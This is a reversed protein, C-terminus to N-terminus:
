NGYITIKKTTRQKNFGLEIFYIGTKVGVINIQKSNYSERVVKGNIDIIKLSNIEIQFESDVNIFCQSSSQSINIKENEIKEIVASYIKYSYTEESKNGNGYDTIISTPYNSQNYSIKRTSNTSFNSSENSNLWNNKCCYKLINGDNLALESMYFPNISEDYSYESDNFLFGSLEKYIFNKINDNEYTFKLIRTQTSDIVGRTLYYYKLEVIKDNVWIIDDYIVNSQTIKSLKNNTFIFQKIIQPKIITDGNSDIVYSTITSLYNINDYNLKNYVIVSGGHEHYDTHYYILNPKGFENYEIKRNGISVLVFNSSLVTQSILLVIIFSFIIRLKNM